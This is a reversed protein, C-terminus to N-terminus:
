RPSLAPLAENFEPIEELLEEIKYYYRKGEIEYVLVAEKDELGALLGEGEKEERDLFSSRKSTNIHAYYYDPNKKRELQVGRGKFYLSDLSVNKGVSLVKLTVVVGKVGPQGGVWNLFSSEELVFPVEYKKTKSSKCGQMFILFVLFRFIVKM